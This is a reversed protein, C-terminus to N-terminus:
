APSRTDSQRVGNLSKTANKFLDMKDDIGKQLVVVLTTTASTATVQALLVLHQHDAVHLTPRRVASASARAHEVDADGNERRLSSFFRTLANLVATSSLLM